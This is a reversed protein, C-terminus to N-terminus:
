AANDLTGLTVKGTSKHLVNHVRKLMTSTSRIGDMWQKILHVKEEDSSLRNFIQQYSELSQRIRLLETACLAIRPACDQGLPLLGILEEDSFSLQNESLDEGRVGMLLYRFQGESSGKYLAAQITWDLRRGIRELRGILRGAAISARANEIALSQRQADTGFYLAVLVALLTGFASFINVLLPVTAAAPTKPEPLLPYLLYALAILTLSLVAIQLKVNRIAHKRM